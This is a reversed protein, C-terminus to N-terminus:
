LKLGPAKPFHRIDSTVLILDNAICTAAIQLDMDPILERKMEAKLKGFIVAEKSSFSVIEDLEELFNELKTKNKELQESRYIGEYLEAVCVSSVVKRGRLDRVIKRAEQKMRLLPILISTDLLYTM